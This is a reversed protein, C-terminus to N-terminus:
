TGDTPPTGGAAASGLWTGLMVAVHHPPIGAKVFAAFQEAVQVALEDLHGIPDAPHFPDDPPAM